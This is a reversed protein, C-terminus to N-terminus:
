LLDKEAAHAAADPDMKALWMAPRRTTPGGGRRGKAAEKAFGIRVLQALYSRATPLAVNAAQAIQATDRPESMDLAKWCRRMGEFM